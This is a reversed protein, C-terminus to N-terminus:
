YNLPTPIIQFKVQTAIQRLDFTRGAIEIHYFKPDLTSMSKELRDNFENPLATSGAV